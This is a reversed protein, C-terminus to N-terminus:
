IRSLAGLTFGLLLGLVTLALSFKVTKQLEEIHLFRYVCPVVLRVPQSTHMLPIVTDWFSLELHQLLIKISM